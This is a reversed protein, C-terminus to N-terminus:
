RQETRDDEVAWTRAQTEEERRKEDYAALQAAYAEDRAKQRDARVRLLLGLLLLLMAITTWDKLFEGITLVAFEICVLPDGGCPAAM